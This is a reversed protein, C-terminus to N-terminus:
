SLPASNSPSSAPSYGSVNNAASPQPHPSTPPHSVLMQNLRSDFMPLFVMFVSLLSFLHGVFTMQSRSKLDENGSANHMMVWWWIIMSLRHISCGGLSWLLPLPVVSTIEGAILMGVATLTAMICAVQTGGISDAFGIYLLRQYFFPTLEHKKVTREVVPSPFSVESVISGCICAVVGCSAWTIAYHHVGTREEVVLSTWMPPVPLLCSVIGVVARTVWLWYFACPHQWLLSLQSPSFSDPPKKIAHTRERSSIATLACNLLCILTVAWAQGQSLAQAPDLPSYPNSYLM